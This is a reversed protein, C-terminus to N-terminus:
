KMEGCDTDNEGVDRRNLSCRKEMWDLVYFIGMAMWFGFFAGPLIGVAISVGIPWETVYRVIAPTVAIGVIVSPILVVDAIDM